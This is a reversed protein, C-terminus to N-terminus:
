GVPITKVDSGNETIDGAIGSARTTSHIRSFYAAITASKSSRARLLHAAASARESPQPPISATDTAVPSDSRVIRFPILSSSSGREPVAIRPLGGRAPGVGRAGVYGRPM